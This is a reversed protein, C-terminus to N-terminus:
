QLIAISAQFWKVTHLFILEPESLFTIVITNVFWIYTYKPLMEENIYIENFIISM